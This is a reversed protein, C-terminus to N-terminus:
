HPRSLLVDTRIYRWVLYGVAFLIVPGLLLAAMLVRLSGKPVAADYITLHPVVLYPYQALGWALFMMAFHGLVFVKTLSEWGKWACVVVILALGIMVLALVPWWWSGSLTQWVLPTQTPLLVMIALSAAYALLAALLVTGRLTERVPERAETWLTVASLLMLWGAMLLGAAAPLPALWPRIFRGVYGEGAATFGAATTGLMAGLLFAMLLNSVIFLVSWVLRPSQGYRVTGVARLLVALGFVAIPVHLSRLIEVFALPFACLLVAAVFLLWVQKAAWLGTGRQLILRRIEHRHVGFVLAYTLGMGMDAGASVVYRALAVFLAAALLFELSPMAANDDSIHADAM